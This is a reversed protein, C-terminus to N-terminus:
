KSLKEVTRYLDRWRKTGEAIEKKSPPKDGAAPDVKTRYSIIRQGMHEPFSGTTYKIRAMEALTEHVPQDSLANRDMYANWWDNSYNSVGDTMGFDDTLSWKYLANQMAHFVPYKEQYGERLSGDPVFVADGGGRKQWWYKGEPDPPPGPDKALASQETRYKNLVTQFKMHEIEHVIVGDLEYENLNPRYLVIRGEGEPKQTEAIGGTNYQKGNLTFTAPEESIDIRTPDFGMDKAIADARQRVKEATLQFNAAPPTVPEIPPQPQQGGATWKGARDRQENPNFTM